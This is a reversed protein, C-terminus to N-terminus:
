GNEIEDEITYPHELSGPSCQGLYYVQTGRPGARVYLMGWEPQLHM